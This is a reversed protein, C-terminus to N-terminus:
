LLNIEITQEMKPLIQETYSKFQEVFRFRAKENEPISVFDPDRDITTRKAKEIL